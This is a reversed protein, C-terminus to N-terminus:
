CAGGQPADHEISVQAAPLHETRGDDHVVALAGAPDIGQVLGDIRREGVRLSCRQGILRDRARWREVVATPSADLARDFAALLDCAVDLRSSSGGLEAISVARGTLDEGWHAHTQLVNIGIGVVALGGGAEVLVGALKRGSGDSEVVDNPWRMGCPGGIAAECAACAAIGARLSLLDDACTSDLVFSMAVGLGRDDQWRRGLRGRGGTQRGAILVLGAAGGSAALAADQTSVTAAVVRVGTFRGSGASGIVAELRDAWMHLDESV